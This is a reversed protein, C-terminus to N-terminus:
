GLKRDAGALRKRCAVFHILEKTQMWGTRWLGKADYASTKDLPERTRISVEGLNDRLLHYARYRPSPGNRCAHFLALAQPSLLLMPANIDHLPLRLLLSATRNFIQSLCRRLWHTGHRQRRWAFVVKCGHRHRDLFRRIDTINVAMDPDMVVVPQDLSVPDNERLVDLGFYTASLQNLPIPPTLWRVPQGASRLATPIQDYARLGDVVCWSLSLEHSNATLIADAFREMVLPNADATTLLTLRSHM